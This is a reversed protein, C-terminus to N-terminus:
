SHTHTHTHTHRTRPTDWSTSCNHLASGALLDTLFALIQVAAPVFLSLSHSLSLSYYVSLSLSFSLSVPRVDTKTDSCLLCQWHAAPYRLFVTFRVTLSTLIWMSSLSFSLFLLLDISVPIFCSRQNPETTFIVLFEWFSTFNVHLVSTLPWALGFM